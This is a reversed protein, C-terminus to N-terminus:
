IHELSILQMLAVFSTNLFVVLGIATDKIEAVIAECTRSTCSPYNCGPPETSGPWATFLTRRFSDGPARQGKTINKVVRFISLLGTDRQLVRGM